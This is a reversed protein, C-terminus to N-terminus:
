TREIVSRPGKAGKTEQLHGLCIGGATSGDDGPPLHPFGEPVPAPPPGHKGKFGATFFPGEFFCVGAAPQLRNVTLIAQWLASAKTFATRLKKLGFSPFGGNVLCHDPTYHLSGQKNLEDGKSCHSSFFPLDRPFDLGCGKPYIEFHLSATVM